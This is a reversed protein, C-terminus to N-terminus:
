KTMSQIRRALAAPWLIGVADVGSYKSGHNYARPKGVRTANNGPNEIWPLDYVDHKLCLELYEGLSQICGVKLFLRLLISGRSRKDVIWPFDYDKEFIPKVPIGKAKIRKMVGQIASARFNDSNSKMTLRYM